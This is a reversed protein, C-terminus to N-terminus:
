LHVVLAHRQRTGPEHVVAPHVEADTVPELLSQEPDLARRMMQPAGKEKSGLNSLGTGAGRRMTMTPPPVAPQIVAAAKAAVNRGSWARSRRTSDLSIPMTPTPSAVSGCMRKKLLRIPMSSDSRMAFVWAVNLSPM